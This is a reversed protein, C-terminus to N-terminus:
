YSLCLCYNCGHDNCLHCESQCHDIKELYDGADIENELCEYDLYSDLM